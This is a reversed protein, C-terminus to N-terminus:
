LEKHGPYVFKYVLTAIIAAVIESTFYIWLDDWHSMKAISLGTAVAPNFAGGSISGLSYALGIITFGIALGYFGNGAVSKSTAVNLVVFCLGFTGIFEALLSSNRKLSVTTVTNMIEEGLLGKAAFVAVTAGALQAIWYLPVDKANIRGRLFISLTVAPNYHAGSIHGGAFIMVMLISGIAIPAMPGAGNKVAVIIILVLFFTGIFEM